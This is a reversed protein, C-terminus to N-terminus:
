SEKALSDLEGFGIESFSSRSQLASFSLNICIIASSSSSDRVAMFSFAISPLTLWKEYYIYKM